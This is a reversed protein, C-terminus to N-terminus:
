PDGLSVALRIGLRLGPIFTIALSSGSLTILGLSGKIGVELTKRAPCKNFEGAEKDAHIAKRDARLRPEEHNSLLFLVSTDQMDKFMAM